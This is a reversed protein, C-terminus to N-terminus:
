SYLSLSSYYISARILLSQVFNLLLFALIPSIDLTGAIPPIIGRFINLYPDTIASLNVLIPNSWDLNPFWSLLVRIILLFSYISLTDRIVGLIMAPINSVLSAEMSLNYIIKASCIYNYLWILISSLTTNSLNCIM